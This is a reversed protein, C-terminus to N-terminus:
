KRNNYKVCDDLFKQSWIPTYDKLCDQLCYTADSNPNALYRPTGDHSLASPHKLKLCGACTIFALPYKAEETKEYASPQEGIEAKMKNLREELLEIEIRKVFDSDYGIYTNNRDLYDRLRRGVLPIWFTGMNTKTNQIKPTHIM